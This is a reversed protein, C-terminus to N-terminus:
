RPAPSAAQRSSTRSRTPWNRISPASGQTSCGLWSRCPPTTSTSAQRTPAVPRRPAWPGCTGRQVQDRASRATRVPSYHKRAWGRRTQPAHVTPVHQISANASRARRHGPSLWRSRRTTPSSRAAPPASRPAPASPLRVAHFFCWTGPAKRRTRPPTRVDAARARARAHPSPRVQRWMSARSCWCSASCPSAPSGFRPCERLPLWAAPPPCAASTGYPISPM